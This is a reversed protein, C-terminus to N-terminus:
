ARRKKRDWFSAAVLWVACVAVMAPTFWRGYLGEASYPETANHFAEVNGFVGAEAFEHASTFLIQAVFFLLFVGTVQFFLKVNIHRSFKVWLVCFAIVAAAGLAAGGFIDQRPVQIMMLASEMGERAIMLTAFLFVGLSQMFQSPEKSIDDIRREMEQKLYRGQKWMQIVLTTVMVAAAVGFIGEWLPQSAGQYLFYGLGASLVLSAGVGWWLAPLAGTRKTKLLYSYIISVILFAEFGERLVIVFAQTM